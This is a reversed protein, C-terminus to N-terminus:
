DDAKIILSLENKERSPWEIRAELAAALAPSIWDAGEKEINTKIGSFSISIRDPDHISQILIKRSEDVHDAAFLLSNGMLNLFFFPHTNATGPNRAPIFEVVVKKQSFERAFLDVSLAVLVDPNVVANMRDTSHAFQNLSRVIRSMHQVQDSIAACIQVWKDLDPPDGQKALLGLDELLGANENIIGLGNNLEHSVLATTKGFFNLNEPAIMNWDDTM